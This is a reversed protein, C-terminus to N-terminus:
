YNHFYYQLILCIINAYQHVFLSGIPTTNQLYYYSLLFTYIVQAVTMRINQLNYKKVLYYNIIHSVAFCSSSIIPTWDYTIYDLIENLYVRYCIEEFFITKLMMPVFELLEERKTFLKHLTNYIRYNLKSVIYNYSSFILILIHLCTFAEITFM